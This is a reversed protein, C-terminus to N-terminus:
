WDIVMHQQWGEEEDMNELKWQANEQMPGYKKIKIKWHKGKVDRMNGVTWHTSCM